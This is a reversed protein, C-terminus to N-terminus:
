EDGHGSLIWLDKRVATEEDRLRHQEESTTTLLQQRRLHTLQRQLRNQTASDYRHAALFYRYGISLGVLPAVTSILGQLRLDQSIDHGLLFSIVVALTATVLFVALAPLVFFALGEWIPAWFVHTGFGSQQVALYAFPDMWPSLQKPRVFSAATSDTRSAWVNRARVSGVLLLVQIVWLVSMLWTSGRGSLELAVQLALITISTSIASIRYASLQDISAISMLPPGTPDVEQLLRNLLQLRSRLRAGSFQSEVEVATQRVVRALVKNTLVPSNLTMQIGLALARVSDASLLDPTNLRKILNSQLQQCAATLLLKGAMSSRLLSIIAIGTLVISLGVRVISAPDDPPWHDIVELISQTLNFM